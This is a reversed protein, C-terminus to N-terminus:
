TVSAITFATPQTVATDVSIFTIVEMAGTNPNAYSTRATIEMVGWEGIVMQSWDGLVLGASPCQNSSFGQYGLMKQDEGMLYVPYGTAKERQMLIEKVGPTMLWKLTGEDANAVEVDTQATLLLPWTINTGTFSGVGSTNFLGLPQGSGGVGSLGVLDTGLAVVKSLDAMVKAEISPNSQILLQRSMEVLASATKPQMAVQGFTLTSATTAGGEAVWYLTSAGSQKPM